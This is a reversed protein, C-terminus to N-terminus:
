PLSHLMELYFTSEGLSHGSYNLVKGKRLDLDRCWNERASTTLKAKVCVCGGRKKHTLHSLM